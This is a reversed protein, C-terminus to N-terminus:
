VKGRLKMVVQQLHRLTKEIEDLVDSAAEVNENPVLPQDPKKKPDTNVEMTKYIKAVRRYDEHGRSPRPTKRRIDYSYM